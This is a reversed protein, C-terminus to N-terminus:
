SVDKDTEQLRNKSSVVYKLACNAAKKYLKGVNRSKAITYAVKMPLMGKQYAVYRPKWYTPNFKMKYKYLSQFDYYNNGYCFIFDFLKELTNAKKGDSRVEALPALGLSIYRGGDLKIQMAADIITKEMVGPVSDPRRRMVDLFYGKKNDFPSFM